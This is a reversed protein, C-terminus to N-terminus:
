QQEEPTIVPMQQRHAALLLERAAIQPRLSQISLVPTIPRSPDPIPHPQDM